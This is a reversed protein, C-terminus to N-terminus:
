RTFREVGAEVKLISFTPGSLSDRRVAVISGGAPLSAIAVVEGHEDFPIRQVDTGDPTAEILDVGAGVLLRRSRGPAVAVATVSESAQLVNPAVPGTGRQSVALLQSVAGENRGALWLVGAEDDWTLDEPHDLGPAIVPTSPRRGAPM